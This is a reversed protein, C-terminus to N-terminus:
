NKLYEVGYTSLPDQDRSSYNSYKFNLFTGNQKATTEAAAVIKRAADRVTIEDKHNTWETMLLFWQHSKESIGLPSDIGSNTARIANSSIPQIAFTIKLGPKHKILDEQQHRCEHAAKYVELDPLSSM